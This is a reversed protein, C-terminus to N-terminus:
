QLLITTNRPTQAQCEYCGLDPLASSAFAKGFADTLRPNGDLDTAPANMWALLVGADRLPSKRRPRWDGNSADAFRPGIMDVTTSLEGTKGSADFDSLPYTAGSNASIGVGTGKYNVISVSDAGGIVCNTLVLSSDASSRWSAVQAFNANGSQGAGSATFNENGYVVCNVFRAKWKAAGMYIGCQRNSIISCNEVLTNGMATFPQGNRTYLCNRVTGGNFYAASYANYTNNSFVCSDIEVATGMVGSNDRFICGLMKLPSSYFFKGSTGEFTCDVLVSYPSGDAAINGNNSDAGYGHRFLTREFWCPVAFIAGRKSTAGDIGATKVVGCDIFESDMVLLYTSRAAYASKSNKGSIAGGIGGAVCSVFSCNTIVHGKANVSGFFVGGGKASGSIRAQCNTLTCGDLTFESFGEEVMIGGGQGNVGSNRITFGRIAVNSASVNKVYKVTFVRNTRGDLLGGDLITNECAFDGNGDDSRIDVNSRAIEITSGIAYVGPAVRICIADADDAAAEMADAIGNAATAWTSYPAAPLNGATGAPVVYHNAAFGIRAVLAALSLALIAPSAHEM